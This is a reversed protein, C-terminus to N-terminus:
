NKVAGLTMGKVFYKQLFPYVVLIPLTVVITIAMKLSQPSVKKALEAASQGNVVNNGTSTSQLLKMLEFQLTTLNPSMANYLYTDFWQNWQGVALFLAITALVPKCLPLIVRWYITFDNAGDLKASEQLSYPLGDMFSRMIFINFANVMGPFIYVWFSNMLGLNRILIYVPILGGSFFLTLALFTSVFTRGQFDRRSLVYAVMSDCFLGLVTGIVTRLVSNRFGILLSHFEFLKKYNDLTFVRPWIYIGGRVTDSSENLSIALVNLFPYLMVIIVIAMILYNM